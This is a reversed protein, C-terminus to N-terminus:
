TRARGGCLRRRGRSGSGSGTQVRAFDLQAAFSDAPDGHVDGRADAASATRFLDENRARDLIQRRSQIANESRPTCSSFPTGSSHRRYCRKTTVVARMPASADFATTAALLNSCAIIHM